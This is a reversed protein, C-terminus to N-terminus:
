NFLRGGKVSYSDGRLATFLMLKLDCKRQGQGSGRGREETVKPAYIIIFSVPCLTQEYMNGKAFAAHFSSTM